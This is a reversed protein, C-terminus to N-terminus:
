LWGRAVAEAHTIFDPQDESRFTDVWSLIDNLCRFGVIPTEDFGHLWAAKSDPNSGFGTFGNLNSLDLAILQNGTAHNKEKQSIAGMAQMTELVDYIECASLEGAYHERLFALNEETWGNSNPLVMEPQQAKWARYDEMFQLFVSALMEGAPLDQMKKRQADVDLYKEFASEQTTQRTQRMTYGSVQSLRQNTIIM